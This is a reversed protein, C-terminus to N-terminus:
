QKMQSLFPVIYSKLSAYDFEAAKFSLSRGKHVILTAPIVGSWDKDVRDIWTNPNPEDLLIVEYRYQKQKLFTKLRTDLEKPDDLSVLLLKVPHHASLSDVLRGFYPLEKVCPRCWTAWFNVVILSDSDKRIYQEFAQFSSKRLWPQHLPQAVPSTQAWGWLPVFGFVCFALLYMIRILM